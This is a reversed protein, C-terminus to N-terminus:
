EEPLVAIHQGGIQHIDITFVMELDGDHYNFVIRSPVITEDEREILDIVFDYSVNGDVAQYIAKLGSSVKLTSSNFVDFQFFRYTYWFAAFDYCLSNDYDGFRHETELRLTNSDEYIFTRYNRLFEYLGAQGNVDQYYFYGDQGKTEVIVEIPTGHYEEDTTTYERTLTFSSNSWFNQTEYYNYRMKYSLGDSDLAYRARANNLSEFWQEEEVSTEDVNYISEFYNEVGDMELQINILTKFQFLIILKAPQGKFEIDLEYHMDPLVLELDEFKAEALYDSIFGFGRDLCNKEKVDTGRELLNWAISNEDVRQYHSYENEAYPEYIEEVVAEYHYKWDDNAFTKYYKHGADINYLHQNGGSNGLLPNSVVVSFNKDDLDIAALYEDEDALIQGNPDYYSQSYQAVYTTDKYIPGEEPEWGSFTYEYTNDNGRSPTGDYKPSEGYEVDFREMLVIGDWNEWRVHYREHHPASSTPAVPSSGQGTPGVPQTPEGSPSPKPNEKKSGGCASLLLTFSLLGTLLFYKKRM